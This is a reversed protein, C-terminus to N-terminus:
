EEEIEIDWRMIYYGGGPFCQKFYVSHGIYYEKGDIMVSNGNPRKCWKNSLGIDVEDAVRASCENIHGYLELGGKEYEESTIEDTYVSSLMDYPVIKNAELPKAEFDMSWCAARDRLREEEMVLNYLYIYGAAVLVAVILVAALACLLIKTRKKM